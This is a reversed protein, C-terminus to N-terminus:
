LSASPSASTAVSPLEPQPTAANEELVQVITPDDTLQRKAAIENLTNQDFRTDIPALVEPPIDITPAKNLANYVAVGTWVISTVLTIQGLTKYTKHVMVTTKTAM